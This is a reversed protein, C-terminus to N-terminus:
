QRGQFRPETGSALRRLNDRHTAAITVAALLAAGCTARPSGTLFALIPLATAAALSAISVIRTLGAVVAFLVVSGLLAVPAMVAFAGAATAVGKGGRFRTFLPFIHGLVATLGVLAMGDAGLGFGRAALAPAAGKAADLGLTLLGLGLGVTRAVNTAGVNGSGERRLDVGARRALLVGTPLSGLLYGGVGAAVTTAWDL